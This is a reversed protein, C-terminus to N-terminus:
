TVNTKFESVRLRRCGEPGILVQLPIAKCTELVIQEDNPPAARAFLISFTTCV